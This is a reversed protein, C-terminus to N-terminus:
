WNVAGPHRLSSLLQARLSVDAAGPAAAPLHPAVLFIEAAAKPPALELLKERPQAPVAQVCLHFRVTFPADSSLVYLESVCLFFIQILVRYVPAKLVFAQKLHQGLMWEELHTCFFDDSFLLGQEKGKLHEKERRLDTVSAFSGLGLIM